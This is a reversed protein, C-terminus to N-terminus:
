TLIPGPATGRNWGFASFPNVVEIRDHEHGWSISVAVRDTFAGSTREHSVPYKRVAPHLVREARGGLLQRRPSRDNLSNKKPRSSHLHGYADDVDEVALALLSFDAEGIHRELSVHLAADRSK